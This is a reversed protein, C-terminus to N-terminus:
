LRLSYTVRVACSQNSHPTRNPGPQPSNVLDMDVNGGPFVSLGPGVATRYDANWSLAIQIRSFAQLTPEQRRLQAVVTVV